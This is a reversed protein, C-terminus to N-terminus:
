KKESDILDVKKCFMDKQFTSINKSQQIFKKILKSGAVYGDSSTEVWNCDPDDWHFIHYGGGMTFVVDGKEVVDGVWTEIGEKDQVDKVDDPYM